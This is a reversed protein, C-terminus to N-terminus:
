PAAKVVSEGKAGVGYADLCNKIARHVVDRPRVGIIEAGRRLRNFETREMRFTVAIRAETGAAGAGRHPDATQRAAGAAEGPRAYVKAGPRTIAAGGGASLMDASLSAFRQGSRPAGISRPVSLSRPDAASKATKEPTM